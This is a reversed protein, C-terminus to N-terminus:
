WDLVTKGDGSIRVKAVVDRSPLSYFRFHWACAGWATVWSYVSILDFEKGKVELLARRRADDLGALCGAPLPKLVNPVTLDSEPLEMATAGKVLFRRFPYSTRTETGEKVRTPLDKFFEAVWQGALGDPTMLEESPDEGSYVSSSVGLNSLTALQWQTDAVANISSRLADHASIRTRHEPAAPKPTVSKTDGGCATAFTVASALIWYQRTMGM